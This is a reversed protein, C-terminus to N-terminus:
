GAEAEIPKAPSPGPRAVPPVPRDSRRVRPGARPGGLKGENLRDLIVSADRGVGRLTSAHGHATANRDFIVDDRELALEDAVEAVRQARHELVELLGPAAGRGELPEHDRELAPEVRPPLGRPMDPGRPGRDGHGHSGGRRPWQLAVAPSQGYDIHWLHLRDRM